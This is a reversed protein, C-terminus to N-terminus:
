QSSIPDQGHPLGKPLMGALTITNQYLAQAIKEKLLRDISSQQQYTVPATVLWLVQGSAFGAIGTVAAGPARDAVAKVASELSLRVRSPDELPSIPVTISVTTQGRSHNQVELILRNPVIVEEGSSGTLRTIRIGVEQVTGSLSLNPLTIVDGVAFQDEYLLFLGTVVDQVLGQAGFSVALGIIGASAVISTTQVHFRDLVMVVVIFDVLYRLVSNLLRYVTTRRAPLGRVQDRHEMRSLMSKGLRTTLVGAVIILGAPILQSM